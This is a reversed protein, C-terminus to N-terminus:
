KKYYNEIANKLASAGLVSCHLKHEPLGDLADTINKDTIKAAEKLTKGKALVTTMSSTAIAAVCGFVLFRIDVIIDDKVKIFLTLYDGCDKDGYSGEADADVMTGANRPSMFHEIVKDTFSSDYM